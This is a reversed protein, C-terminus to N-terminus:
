ALGGEAAGIKRLVAKVHNSQVKRRFVVDKKDIITNGSFTIIKISTNCHLLNLTFSGKKQGLKTCSYGGLQYVMPYECMPRRNEDRYHICGNSTWVEFNCGGLDRAYYGGCDSIFLQGKM